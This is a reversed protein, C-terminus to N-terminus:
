KSMVLLTCSWAGNLHLKQALFKWNGSLPSGSLRVGVRKPTPLTSAAILEKLSVFVRSPKVRKIWCIELMLVHHNWPKMWKKGCSPYTHMREWSLTRSIAANHRPENASLRNHITPLHSPDFLFGFLPYSIYWISDKPGLFRLAVPSRIELWGSVLWSQSSSIGPMTAPSTLISAPKRRIFMKALSKLLLIRKLYPIM